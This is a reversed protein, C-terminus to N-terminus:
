KMILELFKDFGNLTKKKITLGIMRRKAMRREHREVMHNWFTADIRRYHNICQTAIEHVSQKLRLGLEALIGEEVIAEASGRWEQETVFSDCFPERRIPILTKGITKRRRITRTLFLSITSLSMLSITGPEPIAVVRFGLDETAVGRILAPDTFRDTSRLYNASPLFYAGGRIVMGQSDDLPNFAEGGATSELWEWVNGGMNVTGNQEASLHDVVEPNGLSGYVANPPATGTGDSFLSYGGNYYAAKYWENETPLVYVVGHTAVLADMALGDHATTATVKDGAGIAYAGVTTDGSTLWNCYRAAQNWSIQAVPANSGLGGVWFDGGSIGSQTFQAYSVETQSIQFDYNVAGYGTTDATNGANGITVFNMGDAMASGCALLAFLAVAQFRSSINM